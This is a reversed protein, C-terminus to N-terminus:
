KIGKLTRPDYKFGKHTRTNNKGKKTRKSNKVLGTKKNRKVRIYSNQTELLKISQKRIDEPSQDKDQVSITGGGMNMYAPCQARKSCSSFLLSGLFLFIFIQIPRM